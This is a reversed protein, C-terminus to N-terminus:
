NGFQPELCSKGVSGEQDVVVERMVEGNRRSWEKLRGRVRVIDGVVIDPYTHRKVKTMKQQDLLKRREALTLYRQRIPETSTPTLIDQGQKHMRDVLEYRLTKTVLLVYAGNGDDM